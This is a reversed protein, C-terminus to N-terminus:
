FITVCYAPGPNTAHYGYFRPLPLYISSEVTLWIVYGGPLLNRSSGCGYDGTNLGTTYGIMTVFSPINIPSVYESLNNKIVNNLDYASLTRTNPQVPYIGFSTRYLELANQVQRLESVFAAIRAKERAEGVAALVVSSLLSIIAVVVLLEILTFGKSKINM